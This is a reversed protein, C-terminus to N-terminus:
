SSRETRRQLRPASTTLQQPGATERFRSVVRMYTQRTAGQVQAGSHVRSSTPSLKVGSIHVPLCTLFCSSLSFNSFTTLTCSRRFHYRMRLTAAVRRHHATSYQVYRPTLPRNLSPSSDTPSTESPHFQENM